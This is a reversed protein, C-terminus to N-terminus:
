FVKIMLYLGSCVIIPTTTLLHWFIFGLTLLANDNEYTKFLMKFLGYIPIFYSKQEWIEQLDKNM